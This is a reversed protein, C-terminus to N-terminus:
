FYTGFLISFSKDREGYDNVVTNYGMSVGLNFTFAQGLRWDFSVTPFFIIPSRLLLYRDKWSDGGINNDYYRVLTYALYNSFTVKVQNFDFPFQQGYVMTLNGFDNGSVRGYSATLVFAEPSKKQLSKAYSSSVLWDWGEFTKYTLASGNLVINQKKAKFKFGQGYTISGKRFDDTFNFNGDHRKGGDFSTATYVSNFSTIWKEEGQTSRIAYNVQQPDTSIDESKSFQESVNEAIVSSLIEEAVKVACPFLDQFDNYVDQTWLELQGALVEELTFFKTRNYYTVQFGQQESNLSYNSRVVTQECPDVYSYFFSQASISSWLLILFILKQWM